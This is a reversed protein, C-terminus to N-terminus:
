KMEEVLNKMVQLMEKEILTIMDEINSITSEIIKRQGRLNSCASVIEDYACPDELIVQQQMEWKEDDFVRIHKYIEKREEYMKDVLEVLVNKQAKLENLKNANKM